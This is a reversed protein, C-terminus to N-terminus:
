GADPVVDPGIFWRIVPLDIAPRVAHDGNIDLRGRRFREIFVRRRDAPVEKWRRWRLQVYPSGGRYWARHAEQGARLDAYRVIAAALDPDFTSPDFARRLDGRASVGAEPGPELMPEGISVIKNGQIFVEDRITLSTGLAPLRVVFSGDGIDIEVIV